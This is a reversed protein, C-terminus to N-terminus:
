FVQRATNKTEPPDLVFVVAGDLLDMQAWVLLLKWAASRYSVGEVEVTGRQPM